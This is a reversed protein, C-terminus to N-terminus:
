HPIQSLAEGSIGAFGFCSLREYRGGAYTEIDSFM